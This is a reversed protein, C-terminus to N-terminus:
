VSFKQLGRTQLIAMAAVWLAAAGILIYGFQTLGFLQPLIIILSGIVWLVDIAIISQVNKSHLPKKRSQIYVYSAFLLLFIGVGLYPFTQSTGFLEAALGSFAILLLATAGSSVANIMLINKLRNM